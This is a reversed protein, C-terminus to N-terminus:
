TDQAHVDAPIAELRGKLWTRLEACTQTFTSTAGYEDGILADFTGYLRISIKRELLGLFM